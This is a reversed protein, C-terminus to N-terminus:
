TKEILYFREFKLIVMGMSVLDNPENGKHCAAITIPEATATAMKITPAALLGL